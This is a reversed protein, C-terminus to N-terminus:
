ESAMRVGHTDQHLWVHDTRVMPAAVNKGDGYSWFSMELATANWITITSFGFDSCLDHACTSNNISRFASFPPQVEDFPDMSEGNGGAASVVHVAAGPNKYPDNPDVTGNYVTGNYVPWTREYMHNHGALVLDVGGEHLMKEFVERMRSQETTNCTEGSGKQSTWLPRHVYAILWPHAARAEPQNVRTLEAALWEVQLSNNHGAGCWFVAESDLQIFRALGMSWASWYATNTELLQTGVCTPDTQPCPMTFRKSYDCACGCQDDAACSFVDGNGPAVMVPVRGRSARHLDRMFQDGVAGGDVASYYAM